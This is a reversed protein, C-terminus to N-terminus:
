LKELEACDETQYFDFSKKPYAICQTELTQKCSNEIGRWNERVNRYTSTHKGLKNYQAKLLM